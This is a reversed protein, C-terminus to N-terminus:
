SLLSGYAVFNSWYCLCSIHVFYFLQSKCSEIIPSFCHAFLSNCAWSNYSVTTLLGCASCNCNSSIVGKLKLKGPITNDLFFGLFGGVFMNTTLLIQVVQDVLKVGSNRSLLSFTLVGESQHADGAARVLVCTLFNLKQKERPSSWNRM